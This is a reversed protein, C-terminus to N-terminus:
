AWFFIYGTSPPHRTRCEDLASPRPARAGDEAACYSSLGSIESSAAAARLQGPGAAAGRSRGNARHTHLPLGSRCLGLHAPPQELGLGLQRFAQSDGFLFLESRRCNLRQVANLMQRRTPLHRPQTPIGRTSLGVSRRARPASRDRSPDEGLCAPPKM